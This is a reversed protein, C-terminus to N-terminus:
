PALFPPYVQIVLSRLVRAVLLTTLFCLSIAENPVKRKNTVIDKMYKYYPPLKFADTLPIQLFLPKM